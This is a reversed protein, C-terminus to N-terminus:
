EGRLVSDPLMTRILSLFDKGAFDRAKQILLAIPSSPEVARYYAERGSRALRVGRLAIRNLRPGPPLPVAEADAPEDGFDRRITPGRARNRRAVDPAPRFIPLSAAVNVTARRVHDPLLTSVADLFSRGVLSQAQRLLLLTPSSPETEHRHLPDRDALARVAHATTEFTTADGTTGRAEEGPGADVNRGRRRGPSQHPRAVRRIRTVAETLRRLDPPGGPDQASALDIRGVANALNKFTAKAAEIPSPETRCEDIMVRDVSTTNGSDPNGGSERVAAQYTQWSIAGFRRSRFLPANNLATVVTYHESLRELIGARLGSDIRPHLTDWFRELLTAITELTGQFDVVNRNFIQIKALLCLLRLDHTRRLLKTASAVTVGLNVDKFREDTYFPKRTGEHDEVFYREPLSMESASMFNAFADDDEADLDPGCPGDGDIPATRTELEVDTM